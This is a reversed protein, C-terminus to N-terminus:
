GVKQRVPSISCIYFRRENIVIRHQCNSIESIELKKRIKDKLDYVDIKDGHYYVKSFFFDLRDSRFCRKKVNVNSEPTVKLVFM